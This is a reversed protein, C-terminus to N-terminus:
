TEQGTQSFRAFRVLHLIEGKGAPSTHAGGVCIPHPAFNAGVQECSCSLRAPGCAVVAKDALVAVSGHKLVKTFVEQAQSSGFLVSLGEDM